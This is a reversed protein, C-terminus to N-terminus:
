NKIRNHERKRIARIERAVARPTRGATEIWVAGVDPAEIVRPGSGYSYPTDLYEAYAVWAVLIVYGTGLVSAWVPHYLWLINLGCPLAVSLMVGCWVTFGTGHLVTLSVALYACLVLLVILVSQIYDKSGGELYLWVHIGGFFLFAVASVMLIVKFM